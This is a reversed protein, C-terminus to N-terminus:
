VYIKQKDGASARVTPFANNPCGILASRMIMAEKVSVVNKMKKM